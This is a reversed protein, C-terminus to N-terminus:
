GVTSGVSYCLLLILVGIGLYLLATEFPLYTFLYWVLVAICILTMIVYYGVYIDAFVDLLGPMKTGLKQAIKTKYVRGRVNEHQEFENQNVQPSTETKSVSEPEETIITEAKSKKFASEPLKKNTNVSVIIEENIKEPEPAKVKSYSVTNEKKSEVKKVSAFYFGKNYRRKQLSFKSACSSIFLVAILLCLSYKIKSYM